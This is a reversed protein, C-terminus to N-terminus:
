PAELTDISSTQGVWTRAGQDARPSRRPHVPASPKLSGHGTLLRVLAHWVSARRGRGTTM